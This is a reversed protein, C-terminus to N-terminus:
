ATLKESRYFASVMLTSIPLTAYKMALEPLFRFLHDHLIQPWVLHYNWYIFSPALAVLILTVIKQRNLKLLYYALPAQLFCYIVLDHAKNARQFWKETVCCDFLAGSIPSILPLFGGVMLVLYHYAFGMIAVLLCHYILNDRKVM